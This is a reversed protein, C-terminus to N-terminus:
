FANDGSIAISVSFSNLARNELTWPTPLVIVLAYSLRDAYFILAQFPNGEQPWTAGSEPCTCNDVEGSRVRPTEARVLHPMRLLLNLNEARGQPM